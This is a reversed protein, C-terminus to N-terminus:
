DSYRRQLSDVEPLIRLFAEVLTPDFDEGSNSELYQVAQGTTWAEKYPRTSVLADYVDCIAAIRGELPIELGQLGAPYGRGNWKEHHTLAVRRAMKIVDSPYDPIITGGINPHTRMVDLEDPSLRGPKLLINDPIGIKGVDHLPSAIELMEAWHSDMGIELALARCMKSMRILHRGTENDRFEGARALAFNLENAIQRLADSRVDYYVTASMGMDLMTVRSIAFLYKQREAMGAAAPGLVVATLEDMMLAYTGMYFRLDVGLRHHTEGIRRAAALYEDDFAGVFVFRLWHTRQARKARSMSEPSAYMARTAPNAQIKKYVADLMADINAELLHHFEKLTQRTAADISLFSLWEELRKHM